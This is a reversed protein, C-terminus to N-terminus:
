KIIAGYSELVEMADPTLTSKPHLNTFRANEIRLGSVFPITKVLYYDYFDRNEMLKRHLWNGVKNCFTKINKNDRYSQQAWEYKEQKEWMEIAGDYDGFWIKQNDDGFIM